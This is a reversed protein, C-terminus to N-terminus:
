GAQTCPLLPFSLSTICPPMSLRRWLRDSLCGKGTTADRNQVIRAPRIGILMCPYQCWTSGQVEASGLVECLVHICGMYNLNAYKAYTDVQLLRGGGGYKELQLYGEGIGKADGMLVKEAAAGHGM